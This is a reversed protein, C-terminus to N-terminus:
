HFALWPPTWCRLPFSRENPTAKAQRAIRRPTEAQLDLLKPTSTQLINPGDLIDILSSALSAPSLLGRAPHITGFSDVPIRAYGLTSSRTKLLDGTADM